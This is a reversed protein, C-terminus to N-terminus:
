PRAPPAQQKLWDVYQQASSREADDDAATVASQAIAIADELQGLDRAIRALVLRHYSSAPDSQVAKRGLTGAEELQGLGALTEALFSMANADKPDLEHARRLTAEQVKLQAADADQTWRLQALRYHVFARQSGLEVAKAYAEKAKDRQSERDLLQAEIEWPGPSSPEAQAAEAALARAEVPRNMAVHLEARALAAEAPTMERSGFTKVDLELTVGIRAFPLLSQSVYTHIQDFLPKVDGFAERLAQEQPVGRMLLGSFRSLKATHAGNDGFMLYHVFAWAQSEFLHIDGDQTLWHSRGDASLFEDLRILGGRRARDVNAQIVRGVHIEKERVRTNSWVECVGRHYWPPLRGPFSRGLVSSVYSWYASQYPNEDADSPENLDTRVAIFRRDRGTAGFSGPRFRKGEWYEPALTKLTAESRAAFIYFPEGTDVSAWPWVRKIATRIQEFQWLMRRASGEGADSIAIFHESRVEIWKQAAGAQGPFVFLALAVPLGKRFASRADLISFM